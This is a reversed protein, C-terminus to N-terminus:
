LGLVRDAPRAVEWGWARAGSPRALLGFSCARGDQLNIWNLSAGGLLLGTNQPDVVAFDIQEGRLRTQEQDLICQCAERQSEPARDSYIEFTSEAFAM